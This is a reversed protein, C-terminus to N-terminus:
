MQNITSTVSVASGDEALVSVHTTGFREVLPRASYYEDNHTRDATILNRIADAFAEDLLYSANKSNKSHPVGHSVATM